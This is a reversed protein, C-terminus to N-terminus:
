TQRQSSSPGAHHSAPRQWTPPQPPGAPMIGPANAAHNLTPVNMAAMYLENYQRETRLHALEMELAAVKRKNGLTCRDAFHGYEGCKYCLVEDMNFRGRGRGGYRGGRPNGRGGRPQYPPHRGGPNRGGFRGGYRGGRGGPGFRGQRGGQHGGKFKDFKRKKGDASENAADTGRFPKSQNALLQAQNVLDTLNNKRMTPLLERRLWALDKRLGKVFVRCQTKDDLESKEAVAQFRTIYEPVSENALMALEMLKLTADLEEDGRNFRNTLALILEEFTKYPKKDVAKNVELRLFTSATGTTAGQGVFVKQMDDTVNNANFANTLKFEWEELTIPSNDGAFEPGNYIKNVKTSPVPTGSDAGTSPM